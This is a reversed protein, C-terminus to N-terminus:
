IGVVIPSNDVPHKLIHIDAEYLRQMNDQTIVEQASGYAMVESCLLALVKNAYRAALNVDHLVMVIAVGRSAFTKIAMMLAQQHGLDLATTPEDLILLRVGNEADEPDWIQAFVRALQVRQKEGGSLETYLRNKLFVIDMLALAQDIIEADRKVGSQHPTRGLGVVESVRYPFNLLSFQPLVAVQRARLAPNASAGIINLLGQYAWDGCIAKLLSSKGAGNPGIIGLIEGASLECSVSNVLCHSDNGPQMITINELRLITM